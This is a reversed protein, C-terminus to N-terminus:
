YFLFLNKQQENKQFRIERGNLLKERRQYAKRSM